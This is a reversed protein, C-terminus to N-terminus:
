NLQRVKIKKDVSDVYVLHKNRKDLKDVVFSQVKIDDLVNLISIRNVRKVFVLRLIKNTTSDYFYIFGDADSVLPKRSLLSYNTLLDTKSLINFNRDFILLYKRDTTKILSSFYDFNTVQKPICNFFSVETNFYNEFLVKEQKSDFFFNVTRFSFLSDSNRWYVVKDENETFISASIFSDSVLPYKVLKYKKDLSLRLVGYNLGNNSYLIKIDGKEEKSVAWLDQIKGETYIIERNFSFSNFDVEILEIIRENKSYCYFSVINSSNRLVFLDQHNGKLTIHFYISPVGINNRILFKLKNDFKDIFILDSLGNNNLDFTKIVDPKIGYIFNVENRFSSFESIIKIKGDASLFALGYVFRSFFPIVDNIEDGIQIILEEYFSNNDKSFIVSLYNMSSSHCIFDFYGDHNFDGIIFNNIESSTKIFISESFTNLNDGLYIMLGNITAFVLDKYGDFNIDTIQFRNVKYNFTLEREFSFREGDKNYIFMLKQSILDYAIIDIYEDWNIDYFYADLFSHNTFLKKEILRNNKETIISLGNFAEGLILYDNIDDLDIDAYDIKNPFSNLKITKAIRPYGYQNFNMLGFIRSKRSTFAYKSIQNNKDYVPKFYNPEYQFYVKKPEKFKLNPEGTLLYTEKNEQNYVLLDSYSDKNYNFSFLKTQNSITEIETFNTFGNIPIQAVIPATM